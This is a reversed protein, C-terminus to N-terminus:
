FHKLNLTVGTFQVEQLKNGYLSKIIVDHTLYQYADPTIQSFKIQKCNQLYRLDSTLFICRVVMCNPVFKFITGNPYDLTTVNYLPETLVVASSHKVSLITLQQLNDLSVNDWHCHKLSLERCNTLYKFMENSIKCNVLRLVTCNTFEAYALCCNTAIIVSWNFPVTIAQNKLYM